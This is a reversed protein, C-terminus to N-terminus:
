AIRPTDPTTTAVTKAVTAAKADLSLSSAPGIAGAAGLVVEALGVDVVLATDVDVESTGDDVVSLVVVVVSDVVVVVVVVVFRRGVVVVGVVVVVIAVCGGFGGVLVVVVVM